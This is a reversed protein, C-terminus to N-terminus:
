RDGDPRAAAPLEPHEGAGAVLTFRDDKGNVANAMVVAIYPLFVAAAILVWRVWGPGVVVAGVFCATRVSMSWIYRRQRSRIDDARSAAATTIRVPEGSRTRRAAM